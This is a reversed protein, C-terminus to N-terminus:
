SLSSAWTLNYGDEKGKTCTFLFCTIFPIKMLDTKDSLNIEGSVYAEITSTEIAEWGSEVKEHNYGIDYRRDALKEVLNKLLRPEALTTTIAISSNEMRRGKKNDSNKMFIIKLNKPYLDIEKLRYKTIPLFVGILQILQKEFVPNEYEWNCHSTGVSDARFFYFRQNNQQVSFIPPRTSYYSGPLSFLVENQQRQNM